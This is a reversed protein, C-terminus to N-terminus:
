KKSSIIQLNLIIILNNMKNKIEMQNNKVQKLKRIMKNKNNIKSKNNRNYFSNNIIIMKYPIM